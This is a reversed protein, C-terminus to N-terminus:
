LDGQRKSLFSRWKREFSRTRRDPSPLKEFDAQVRLARGVDRTTAEPYASWYHDTPYANDVTWQHFPGPPFMDPFKETPWWAGRM